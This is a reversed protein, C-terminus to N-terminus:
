AREWIWGYLLLSLLYAGAAGLLFAWDGRAVAVGCGFNAVVQLIGHPLFRGSSFRWPPSDTPHLVSNHHGLALSALIAALAALPNLALTFLVALTIVPLGKRWLAVFGRQPSLRWRARAPGDLTFLNQTLTGLSLVVILALLDLAARDPTRALFRYLTGSIAFLFAIWVDLTRALQRAELTPMRWLWPAASSSPVSFLRLARQAWRPLPWLALRMEPIKALPTALAPILLLLGLVFWLFAASEPQATLLLAFYFLNNGQVSGLSRTDRWASKGLAWLIARLMLLLAM